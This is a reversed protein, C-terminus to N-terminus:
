SVSSIQDRTLGIDRLRHDSLAELEARTRRAELWDLFRRLLGGRHRHRLELRSRKEAGVLVVGDGAVRYRTGRGAFVDDGRGPETIWVCGDLVEVLMDRAEAMRLTGNTELNLVM